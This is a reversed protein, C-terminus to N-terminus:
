FVIAEIYISRTLRLTYSSFRLILSGNFTIILTNRFLLYFEQNNNKNNRRGQQALTYEYLVYGLIYM